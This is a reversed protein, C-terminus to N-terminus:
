PRIPVVQLEGVHERLEEEVDSDLDGLVYVVELQHEAIKRKKALSVLSEMGQGVPSLLHIGRLSPCPIGTEQDPRLSRFVIEPLLSGDSPVVQLIKVNKFLNILHDTSIYCGMFVLNEIQDFPIYTRDALFWTPLPMGASKYFLTFQANFEKGSLEVTQPLSTGRHQYLVTTIGSLLAHGNQPLLDALMGVKGPQWPFSVSLSKLRPLKLSPLTRSATDCHFDLKVVSDMSVVQESAVDEIIGCSIKTYIEQLRPCSSYLHFLSSMRLPAMNGLLRLDLKTLSPLLFPSELIPCIGIFVVSRLSPAQRGLFKDPAWVSGGIASSKIELHELSPVPNCLLLSSATYVDTSGEIVLSRTRSIHLAFHELVKLSSLNNLAIRIDITVSKSKKLYMLTRDIDRDSRLQLFTWLRPNSTLTSRWYQCVHTAAVLDQGCDRHHFVSSLVEPSLKNVPAHTNRIARIM